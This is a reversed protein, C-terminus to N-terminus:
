MRCVATIGQTLELESMGHSKSWAMVKNVAGLLIALRGNQRKGTAAAKQSPSGKEQLPAIEFIGPLLRVDRGEKAAAVANM